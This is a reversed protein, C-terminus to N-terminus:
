GTAHYLTWETEMQGLRLMDWASKIWRRTWEDYESLSPAILASLIATSALSAAIGATTIVSLPL